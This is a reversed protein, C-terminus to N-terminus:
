LLFYQFEMGAFSQANISRLFSLNSLKLTNKKEFFCLVCIKDIEGSLVNFNAM